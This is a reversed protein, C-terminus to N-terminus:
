TWMNWFMLLIFILQSVCSPPCLSFGPDIGGSASNMFTSNRQPKQPMIKLTRLSSNVYVINVYCILKLGSKSLLPPPVFDTLLPSQSNCPPFEGSKKGNVDLFEAETYSWSLRSFASSKRRYSYLGKVTNVFTAWAIICTCYMTSHPHVQVGGDLCLSGM